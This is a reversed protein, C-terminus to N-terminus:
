TNTQRPPPAYARVLAEKVKRRRLKRVQVELGEACIADGSHPLRGQQTQCWDALVQKDGPPLPAPRGVTSMVTALPVGGGMIWGTALPHIHAPLRDYEDGIHGVLEEVIDELTILGAITGDPHCVAAIHINDRIMQELAQALTTHVEMRQLPRIINKLRPDAPNIRLASVIDKFNVYGNVTLPNDPERCTPYRTHM